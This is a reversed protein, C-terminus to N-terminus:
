LEYPPKNPKIARLTLKVHGNEFEQSVMKFKSTHGYDDHQGFYDGSFHNVTGPTWIYCHTPDSFVMGNDWDDRYCPTQMYFEGGDKLVRYIENFLEIMCNRKVMIQGIAGPFQQYVVAPIHELFDFATVLDFMDDAFPIPEIALDSVKCNKDNSEFIDVGYHEYGDRGRIINGCGLDLQKM